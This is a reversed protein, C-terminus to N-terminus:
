VFEEPTEEMRVELHSRAVKCGYGKAMIKVNVYCAGPPYSEVCVEFKQWKQLQYEPIEVRKQDGAIHENKENLLSIIMVFVCESDSRNAFYESFFIRPRQNDFVDATLGTERLDFSLVKDSWGYTTEYCGDFLDEFEESFWGDLFLPPSQFIWNRSFEWRRDANRAINNKGEPNGTALLNRNFPRRISLIAFDNGLFPKGIEALEKLYSERDYEEKEIWFSRGYTTAKWSKCIQRCKVIENKSLRLLIQKLIEPNATSWDFPSSAASTIQNESSTLM